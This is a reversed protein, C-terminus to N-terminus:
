HIESRQHILDGHIVVLTGAKVEIPVFEKQDYLPSPNDFHVGNEDRVFRRVLGDLSIFIIKIKSNQYAFVINCSQLIIFLYILLSPLSVKILGQFLGFVAM